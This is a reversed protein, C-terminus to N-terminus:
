AEEEGRSSGSGESLASRAIERCGEYLRLASIQADGSDAIQQLAAELEEVRAEATLARAKWHDRHIWAVETNARSGELDAKLEGVLKEVESM